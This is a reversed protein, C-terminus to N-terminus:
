ADKGCPCPGKGLRPRGCAPCRRVLRLRDKQRQLAGPFLVKGVLGLVMFALLFLAITKILM